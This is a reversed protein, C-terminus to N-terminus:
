AGPPQTGEVVARFKAECMGKRRNMINATVRNHIEEWATHVPHFRPWVTRGYRLRHLTFAL